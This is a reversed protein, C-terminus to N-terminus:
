DCTLSNTFVQSLDWISGIEPFATTTTNSPPVIEAIGGFNCAGPGQTTRYIDYYANFAWNAHAIPTNPIYNSGGPNIPACNLGGAGCVWGLANILQADPTGPKANCVWNVEACMIKAALCQNTSDPPITTTFGDFAWTTVISTTFDTVSIQCPFNTHTDTWVDMQLTDGDIVISSAVFHNCTLQNVKDVGFFKAAALYAPPYPIATLNGPIKVNGSCTSNALTSPLTYHAGKTYDCYDVPRLPKPNLLDQQNMRCSWQNVADYAVLQGYDYLPKGGTTKVVSTVVWTYWSPPFTTPPTPNQADIGWIVALFVLLLM